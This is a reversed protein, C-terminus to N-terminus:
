RGTRIRTSIPVADWHRRRSRNVLAYAKLGHGVQVEVYCPETTEGHIRRGAALVRRILRLAARVGASAPGQPHLIAGDKM